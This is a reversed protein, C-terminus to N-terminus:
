VHARRDGFGTRVLDGRRVDRALKYVTAGTEYLAIPTDKSFCPDASNNYTGMYVPQSQSYTVGGDDDYVPIMIPRSPTMPPLNNFLDDIRDRERQFDAGGYLQVGPDKFNNCQQLLHANAISPLFHRGWRRFHEAEFAMSIQGDLDEKLPGDAIAPAVFKPLFSRKSDALTNTVARVVALRDRHAPMAYPASPTIAFIESHGDLEVKVSLTPDKSLILISRSQGYQLAGLQECYFRGLWWEPDDPHSNDPLPLRYAADVSVVMRTGFTTLLNAVASVFITGVMGADPIFAYTGRGRHAIATLITSDLGYGFGFTNVIGPLGHKDMYADFAGVTGRPPEDTPCGDTLLYLARVRAPDKPLASLLKLGAQLGAWINTAARDRLKSAVDNAADKGAANMRTTELRTEVIDDFTVLALTDSDGLSAVVTKIAHAVVDLVTLGTRETGKQTKVDASSGMSGSIDIVCVVDVPRRAGTAPPTITVLTERTASDREATVRLGQPIESIDEFDM